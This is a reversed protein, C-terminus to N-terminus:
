PTRVEVEGLLIAQCALRQHTSCQKSELHFREPAKIPSLREFGQLIEVICTGCTCKGDCEHSVAISHEKLVDLISKGRFTEIENKNVIIKM